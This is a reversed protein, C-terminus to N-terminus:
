LKITEKNTSYYLYKRYALYRKDIHKILKSVDINNYENHENKFIVCRTEPDIYFLYNDFMIHHNPCLAIINKWNDCESDRGYPKVHAGEVLSKGLINKENWGCIVCKNGSLEVGKITANKNRM